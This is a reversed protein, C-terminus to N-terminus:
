INVGHLDGDFFFFFFIQMVTFDPFRTVVPLISWVARLHDQLQGKLSSYNIHTAVLHCEQRNGVIVYNMMRMSFYSITDVQRLIPLTNM